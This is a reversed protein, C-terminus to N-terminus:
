TDILFLNIFTCSLPNFLQDSSVFVFIRMLEGNPLLLTDCQCSRQYEALIM